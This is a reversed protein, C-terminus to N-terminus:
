LDIGHPPSEHRPALDTGSFRRIAQREKKEEAADPDREVQLFLMPWIEAIAESLGMISPEDDLFPRLVELARAHIAEIEEADAQALLRWVPHESM